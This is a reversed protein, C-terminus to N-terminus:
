IGTINETRPCEETVEDEFFPASKRVGGDQETQNEIEEAQIWLQTNCSYCNWQNYFFLEYNPM